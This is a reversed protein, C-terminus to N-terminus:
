KKKKGISKSKPLKAAEPSKLHNISLCLFRSKSKITKFPKANGIEIHFKRLLEVDYFGLKGETSATV